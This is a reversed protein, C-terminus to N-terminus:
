AGSRSDRAAQDELQQMARRRQAAGGAPKTERRRQDLRDAATEAEQQATTTKVEVVHVNGAEDSFVLDPYSKRNRELDLAEMYLRDEHHDYAASLFELASEEFFQSIRDVDDLTFPKEDRLRIALYNHSSFGAAAALERLTIRRAAMRARAEASVARAFPSRSGEPFSTM